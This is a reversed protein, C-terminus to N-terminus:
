IIKSNDQIPNIKRIFRMSPPAYIQRITNPSDYPMFMRAQDPLNENTFSELLEETTGFGAYSLLYAAIEPTKAIAVVIANKGDKTAFGRESKNPSVVLGDQRGNMLNYLEMTPLDYEDTILIADEPFKTQALLRLESSGRYYQQLLNLPSEGKALAERTKESTYREVGYGIAFVALLPLILQKQALISHKAALLAAFSVIPLFVLFVRPYPAHGSRSLFLVAGIIIVTLVAIALPMWRLRSDAEDRNSADGKTRFPIGVLIVALHVAFALLLNLAVATASEWGSPEKSAEVFQDWITFYYSGGIFGGALPVLSPLVKRTGIFIVAAVIPAVLANSPITLPLLMCCIFSFLLGRGYKGDVCELAGSIAAAALMMSLSYGRVQYAFATFVPSIAFVIAGLCAIRVGLWKRWHLSIILITVLGEILSPLRVLFESSLDYGLCNAWIAYIASSLIHNNAIPYSRFVAQFMGVRNPDFVFNGFTLVEDYWYESMAWSLIRVVFIAIAVLTWALSSEPAALGDAPKIDGSSSM